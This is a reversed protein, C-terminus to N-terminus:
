ARRSGPLKDHLLGLVLRLLHRRNIRVDDPGRLVRLSRGPGQLRRPRRMQVKQNPCLRRVLMSEYQLPFGHFVLIHALVIFADQAGHNRPIRGRTYTGVALLM